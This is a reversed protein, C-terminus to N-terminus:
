CLLDKCMTDDGIFNMNKISRDNCVLKVGEELSIDQAQPSGQLFFGRALALLLQLQLLLKARVGHLLCAHAISWWLLLLWQQGELEHRLVEAHRDLLRRRLELHPKRLQLPPAPLQADGPPRVALHPAQLSEDVINLHEQLNGM